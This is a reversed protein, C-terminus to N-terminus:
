MQVERKRLIKTVLSTIAVVAILMVLAAMQGYGARNNSFFHNYVFICFTESAKGPGGNTAVKPYDFAISIPSISPAILLKDIATAPSSVTKPAEINACNM